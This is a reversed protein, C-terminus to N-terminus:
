ETEGEKPTQRVRDAVRVKEWTMEAQNGVLRGTGRPVYDKALNKHEPCLPPNEFRDKARVSVDVDCVRYSGKQAPAICKLVIFDNDPAVDISAASANQQEEQRDLWNQKHTADVEAAFDEDTEIQIIGRTVARRFWVNNLLAAPVAQVDNGSPDGAGAWEVFSEAEKGYSFVTPGPHTNRAM